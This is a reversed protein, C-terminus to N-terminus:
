KLFNYNKMTCYNELHRWLSSRMIVENLHASKSSKTIKQKEFISLNLIIISLNLFGVWHTVQHSKRRWVRQMFKWIKSLWFETIKNKIRSVSMSKIRNVAFQKFWIKYCKSGNLLCYSNKSFIITLSNVQLDVIVSFSTEELYASTIKQRYLEYIRISLM